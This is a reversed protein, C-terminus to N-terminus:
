FKRVTDSDEYNMTTIKSYIITSMILIKLNIGLVNEIQKIIGNNIPVLM